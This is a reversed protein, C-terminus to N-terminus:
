LFIPWLDPEPNGIGPELNFRIGGQLPPNLPIKLTVYDAFTSKVRRFLM